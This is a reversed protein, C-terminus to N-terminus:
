SVSPVMCNGSGSNKSPIVKTLLNDGTIKRAEMAHEKGESM